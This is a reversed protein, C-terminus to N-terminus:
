HALALCIIHSHPPLHPALAARAARLTTGTTIVDDVIVHTARILPTEPLYCQFAGSMNKLRKNRALSTQPTTHKVKKLLEEDTIVNASPTLTKLINAVQNYGRERQRETSLPIPILVIPEPKQTALWSALAISLLTAATQNNHFKNEQILAKVSEHQYPLLYLIGEHMSSKYLSQINKETLNRVVRETPRPPFLTDLLLNLITLM